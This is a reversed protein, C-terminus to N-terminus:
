GLLKAMKGTYLNQLQKFAGQFILILIWKCSKTNEKEGAEMNGLTSNWLQHVMINQIWICKQMNLFHPVTIARFDQWRMLLSNQYKM